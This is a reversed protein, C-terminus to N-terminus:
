GGEMAANKWPENRGLRDFASLTRRLHKLQDVMAVFKDRHHADRLLNSPHLITMTPYVVDGAVGPVRITYMERMADKMNKYKTFAQTPVKGCCVIVLPDIIYILRQLRPFCAQIETKSPQRIEEKGSGQQIFPRCCVTNTIYLRDREIGALKLEHDLFTGAQGVFPLGVEDEQPGPGEGIWLVEPDPNGSGFVLNNRTQSLSCRTCGAWEKQLEVLRAKKWEIRDSM